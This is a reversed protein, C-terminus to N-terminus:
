ISPVRYLQSKINLAVRFAEDLTPGLVCYHGMKRGPRGELKGYLHLKARPHDLVPSWDPPSGDKWLDGLLNVMVAPALLERSGFPYGCVARLQQEFQSTVCADFTYHGSNHPRPALENVLLDGQSTVFFEVAILGVVELDAAISRAIESAEQQIRDPVRAPVLSYDLIHRSHINEAAPFTCLAGDMGRAAIVSIECQFDVWKELVAKGGIFPTFDAEAAAGIKQQGKGDYGFDATKLVAPCGLEQLGARLDADGRIVLFPGLPYGRTALFTKERERNQCIHLVESRPRIPKRKAIRNIVEAPINEFEFTVVDVSDLFEAIAAEDTYAGTFERDSIQGAPSDPAAEYTHVRYGLRRAAIGFMRGLQGGGLVGITAGPAIRDIMEPSKRSSGGKCLSFNLTSKVHFAFDM